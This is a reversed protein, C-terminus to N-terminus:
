KGLTKNHLEEQALHPPCPCPPASGQGKRNQGCLDRLTQYAKILEIVAFFTLLVGVILVVQRLVRFARGIMPRGKALAWVQPDVPDGADYGNSSVM